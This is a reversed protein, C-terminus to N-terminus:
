PRVGERGISGARAAVGSATRTRGEWPASGTGVAKAGARPHRHVAAGKLWLKAAELHISAVVQGAMLPYRALVSRMVGPTLARRELFLTADLARRGAGEAGRGASRAGGPAGGPDAGERLNMQVVLRAGPETFAWDYGLGMPLFPSVHFAKEFGWRLRGSGPRGRGAGRGDLVYAHRERWPTNTIEAVIAEVGEGGSETPAFCYYFTVPNFVYGFCRVHTLMRVPGSPRWGLQAEVMGRVSGELSEGSGGGLYDGRVFRAPRWWERGWWPSLALVRDLEGLDLYAMFLPFTFGHEPSRRRHRVWGEYIASAFTM